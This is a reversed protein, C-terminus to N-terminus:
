CPVQDEVGGLQQHDLGQPIWHDLSLVGAKGNGLVAEKLFLGQEHAFYAISQRVPSLM